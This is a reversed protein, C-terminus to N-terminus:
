HFILASGFATTLLGAGISAALDPGPLAALARFSTYGIVGLSVGAFRRELIPSSLRDRVQRGLLGAGVAAAALPGILGWGIGGLEGVRSALSAISNIATVM